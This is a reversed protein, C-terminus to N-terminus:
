KCKVTEEEIERGVTEPVILLQISDRFVGFSARATPIFAQETPIYLSLEM